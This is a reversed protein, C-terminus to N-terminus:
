DTTLSDKLRLADEDDPKLLLVKSLEAYAEGSYGADRYLRALFFRVGTDLPKYLLYQKLIPELETFHERPNCLFVLGRLAGACLCNISLAQRYLQRAQQIDGSQASCIALGTISLDAKNHLQLSRQFSEKAGQLDNQSLAVLGNVYWARWFLPDTKFVESLVPICAELNGRELLSQAQITSAHTKRQRPSDPNAIISACLTQLETYNQENLLQDLRDTEVDAYFSPILDTM